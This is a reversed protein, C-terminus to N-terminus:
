RGLQSRGSPPLGVVWGPLLGLAPTPAAQRPSHARRLLGRAWPTGPTGGGQPVALWAGPTGWRAPAGRGQGGSVTELEREVSYGHGHAPGCLVKVFVPQGTALETGQFPHGYAGSCGQMYRELRFRADLVTGVLLHPSWHPSHLVKSADLPVWGVGLGPGAGGGLGAGPSGGVPQSPPLWM